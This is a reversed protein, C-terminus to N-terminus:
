KGICLRELIQYALQSQEMNGDALISKLSKILMLSPDRRVDDLEEIPCLFALRVDYNEDQYISTKDFTLLDGNALCTFGLCAAIAERIPISEEQSFLLLFQPLNCNLVPALEGLIGSDVANICTTWAASIAFMRQGEEATGIGILLHELQAPSASGSKAIRVWDYLSVM